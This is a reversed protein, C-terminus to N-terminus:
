RITRENEHSPAIVIHLAHIARTLAVYLVCLSETVTRDTADEFMQQFKRPLLQQIDSNVYRCIRDPPSVPKERHVVFSDPQGILRSELEPLVVIDFELGKAQHITMVRV